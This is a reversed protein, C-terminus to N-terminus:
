KSGNLFSNISEVPIRVASVNPVRKLKGQAIFRLISSRTFSLAQCAEKLTLTRKDAAHNVSANEEGFEELAKILTTPTLGQVFPKLIGTVISITDVSIQNKIIM